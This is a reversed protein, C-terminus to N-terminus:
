PSASASSAWGLRSRVPCAPCGSAVVARCMGFLLAGYHVPRASADQPVAARQRWPRCGAPAGYGVAHCRPLWCVAGVGVRVRVRCVRGVTLLVARVVCPLAAPCWQRVKDPLTWRPVSVWSIVIGVWWAAISSLWVTLESTALVKSVAKNATFLRDFLQARSEVYLFQSMTYKQLARLAVGRFFVVFLLLECM